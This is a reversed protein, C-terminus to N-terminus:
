LRGSARSSIAASMSMGTVGPVGRGGDSVSGSAIPCNPEGISKGIVGTCRAISESPRTAIHSPKSAASFESCTKSGHLPWNSATGVPRLRKQAPWTVSLSPRRSVAPPWM